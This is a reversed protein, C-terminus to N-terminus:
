LTILNIPLLQMQELHDLLLQLRSGVLMLNICASVFGIGIGHRVSRGPGGGDAIAAVAGGAVLVLLTLGFIVLLTDSRKM